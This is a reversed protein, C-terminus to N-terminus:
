LIEQKLNSIVKRKDKNKLKNFRFGRNNYLDPPLNEFLSLILLISNRVLMINETKGLLHMLKMYIKNKWIEVSQKGDLRNQFYKLINDYYEVDSNNQNM